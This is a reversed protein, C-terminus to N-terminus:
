RVLLVSMCFVIINGPIVFVSPLVTTVRRFLYNPRSVGLANYHLKNQQIFVVFQSMEIVRYATGADFIFCNIMFTVDVHVVFNKQARREFCSLM